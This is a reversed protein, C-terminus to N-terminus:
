QSMRYSDNLRNPKNLHTFFDLTIIYNCLNIASFLLSSSVLATARKALVWHSNSDSFRKGVEELLFIWFSDKMSPYCWQLTNMNFFSTFLFSVFCNRERGNRVEEHNRGNDLILKLDFILSATSHPIYSWPYLVLSLLFVISRPPLLHALLSDM